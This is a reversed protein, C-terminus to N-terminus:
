FPESPTFAALVWDKEVLAPSPLDFRQQIELSLLWYYVHMRLLIFAFREKPQEVGM